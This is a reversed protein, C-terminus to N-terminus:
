PGPLPSPTLYELTRPREGQYPRFPDILLNDGVAVQNRRTLWIVQHREVFCHNFGQALAMGGCLSIAAFCHLESAHM